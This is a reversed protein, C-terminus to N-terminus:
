PMNASDDGFERDLLTRLMDAVTLGRTFAAVKIQGRLMTTIDITLRADYPPAKASSDRSDASVWAEPSSPRITFGTPRRAGTM